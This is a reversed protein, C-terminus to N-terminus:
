RHKLGEKVLDETSADEGLIEFAKNVSKNATLPKCGLSILAAIADNIRTRHSEKIEVPHKSSPLAISGVKDKLEVILREATKKGIGPIQTLINLDNSLIARVFDEPPITSLIVLSTRPGIGSINLFIEFIDREEVSSFGFLKLIDERLHLHIFLEADDGIDGLSNYTPLPIDIGYGVGNVDLVIHDKDKYLLKGKLYEIM